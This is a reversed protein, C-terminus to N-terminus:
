KGYNKRSKNFLFFCYLYMLLIIFLFLFNTRYRIAAGPNFIGFPYHLFCIGTFIIFYSFFITVNFKWLSLFRAIMKGALFVFLSVIVFSEMGALLQLPKDLMEGLTPGWFAIFMGSLAHRFFDNDALFINERTSAATDTNFHDYIIGAYQNIIDSILYLFLFNCFLMFMGSVFRSKWSKCWRGAIYIFLLGQFIFPIYQPKFILCLYTAFIDRFHIKYNGNLFNVILMGFIASFTLGFIEKSCVSTWICFNPLSILFLLLRPSIYKRFELKEITWRVLFFSYLMFPLNSLVNMGGLLSGAFGGIFNMLATSSVFIKFSFNLGHNLYAGTDGLGSVHEYVLVAFLLYFLRIWFYTYWFRDVKMVLKNLEM